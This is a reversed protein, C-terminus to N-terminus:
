SLIDDTNSMNKYKRLLDTKVGLQQRLIEMRQEQEERSLDIGPLKQVEEKSKEM